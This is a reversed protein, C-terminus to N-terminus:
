IGQGPQSALSLSWEWGRLDEEWVGPRQRILLSRTRISDGSSWSQFAANMDSAYLLRRLRKKAAGIWYAAATSGVSLALLCIIAVVTSGVVLAGFLTLSLGGMAAMAPRRRAWKGVRELNTIPRARIPEGHLWCTLDEALGEASSYRRSPEKELCKLCITELDRDVEPNLSSPRRPEQELVQRVTELSTEGAFPPTETLTEYLIAGLGYVDAATTVARTDGRAQEPSMYAPTGLVAHTHTLTSEKEVLKALGFDTLHPQGKADLLVNGPTLDRHLVGRQHAYHVARALTILLRVSVRLPCHDSTLSSPLAMSSDRTGPSPRSGGKRRATLAARLSPGEILEMSFYHHGQHEGVEYIPVINPHSLSAATEAEAKFRKVLEPTALTGMSIVKVAVIRNLSRQRARFVVGMGGRAIESLLEYDGFYHLKVVTPSAQRELVSRLSTPAPDPQTAAESEAAELGLSFLCRACLGAPTGEPM